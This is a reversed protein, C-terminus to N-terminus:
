VITGPILRTHVKMLTKKKTRLKSYLSEWMTQGKMPLTHEKPWRIVNFNVFHPRNHSTLHSGLLLAVDSVLKTTITTMTFTYLGNSPRMKINETM